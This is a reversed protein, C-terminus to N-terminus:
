RWGYSGEGVDVLTGDVFTLYRVFRKPGLDYVWREVLVPRTVDVGRQLHVTVFDTEASRETPEGCRDYVDSTTQGEGVLRQGCRLSSGAAAAPNRMLGLWIFSFLVLLNFRRLHRM